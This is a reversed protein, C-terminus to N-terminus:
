KSLVINKVVFEESVTCGKFIGFKFKAYEQLTPKFDHYVYLETGYRVWNKSTVSFDWGEFGSKIREEPLKQIDGEFPVGHFYFRCRRIENNEQSLFDFKFYIRFMDNKRALKIGKLILDERIAVSDTFLERNRDSDYQKSIAAFAKNKAIDNYFVFHEAYQVNSNFLKPLLYNTLQKNNGKESILVVDNPKLKTCYDLVFENFNAGSTEPASKYNVEMKFPLDKVKHDYGIRVLRRSDKDPIAFLCNQINKTASPFITRLYNKSKVSVPLFILIIALIYAYKQASKRKKFYDLQWLRKFLEDLMVGTIMVLAPLFPLINRDVYVKQKAILWVSLLIVATLAGWIIRKKGSLRRMGYWLIVPFLFVLGGLSTFLEGVIGKFNEMKYNELVVNKNGTAYHWFNSFYDHMAGYFVEKSLFINWNILYFFVSSFLILLTIAKLRHELGRSKSIILVAILVILFLSSFKLSITLAFLFSLFITFFIGVSKKHQLYLYFWILINLMSLLLPEIYFLSREELFLFNIGVLTSIMFMAVFYDKKWLYFLLPVFSLFMFLISQLKLYYHFYRFNPDDMNRELYSSSLRYNKVFYNHGPYDWGDVTITSGMHSNMGVLAGPYFLYTFIRPGNLARHVMKDPTISPHITSITYYEDVTFEHMHNQNYNIQVVVTTFFLLLLSVLFLKYKSISKYWNIKKM